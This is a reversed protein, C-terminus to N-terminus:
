QSQLLPLLVSERIASRMLPWYNVGHLDSTTGDDDQKLIGTRIAPGNDVDFADELKVWLAAEAAPNAFRRALIVKSIKSCEGLKQELHRRAQQISRHVRKLRDLELSAVERDLLADEERSNRPLHNATETCYDFITQAFPQRPLNSKGRLAGMLATWLREAAKTRELAQAQAVGNGAIATGL